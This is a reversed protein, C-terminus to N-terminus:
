SPALRYMLLETARLGGHAVYLRRRAGCRVAVSKPRCVGSAQTVAHQLFRGEMSFVSVRDNYYDAVYVNEQADCCVGYPM